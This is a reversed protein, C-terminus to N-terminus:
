LEGNEDYTKQEAIDDETINESNWEDHIEDNEDVLYHSSECVYQQLENSLESFKVNMPINRWDKLIEM